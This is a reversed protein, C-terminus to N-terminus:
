AAGLEVGVGTVGVGVGVIVIALPPFWAGPVKGPPLPADFVDIGAGDIVGVAEGVGLLEVEGDTVGPANQLGAPAVPFEADPTVYVQLVEDM